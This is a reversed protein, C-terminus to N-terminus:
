IHILSLDKLAHQSMSAITATSSAFGGFFGAIPLGWRTGVVRLLVYGGANILMIVLTLRWVLRPNIAGWPGIPEDPLVPLVILAAAALLLGDRLEQDSLHQNAFRHLMGRSALLLALAVGVGAALRPAPAAIAGIVFTTLQAVETTLGPDHERSHLYSATALLVVGLGAVALVVVEGTLASLVGLLATIAFTRVGAAARNPGDGKTRERELGILFGIGIAVGISPAAALLSPLTADLEIM